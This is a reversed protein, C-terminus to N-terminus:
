LMRKWARGVIHKTNSKTRHDSRIQYGVLKIGDVVELRTNDSMRLEPMFDYKKAQNFLLCITKEKNISMKAQQCYDSLSDLELQMPNNRISLQPLNEWPLAIAQAWSWTKM